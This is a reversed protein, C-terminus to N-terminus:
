GCRRRWVCSRFTARSFPISANPNEALRELLYHYEPLENAWKSIFKGPMAPHRAIESMVNGLNWGTYEGFNSFYYSEEYPAEEDTIDRERCGALIEIIDWTIDANGALGYVVEGPLNRVIAPKVWRPYSGSFFLKLENINRGAYWPYELVGEKFAKYWDRSESMTSM